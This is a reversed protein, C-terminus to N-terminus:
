ENDEGEVPVTRPEQKEAQPVLKPLIVNVFGNSYTAKLSDRDIRVETPLSVIRHFPGYYVELQYYRKIGRRNGEGETRVGSISLFKGDSSLSVEIDSIKVGAACVRVVLAEETEYVDVRPAWVKGTGPPLRFIQLMDDSLRQMEREFEEIMDDYSKFM